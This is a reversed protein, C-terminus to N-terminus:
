EPNNNERIVANQIAAGTITFPTLDQDECYQIVSDICAPLCKGGFGMQGDPGPSYIHSYGVRPDQALHHAFENWDKLSVTAFIQAFENFLSVKSALYVNLFLKYAIAEVPTLNIKWRKRLYSYEYLEAVSNYTELDYTGIVVQTSDIFDRDASAQRLFEPNVAIRLKESWHVLRDGYELPLTTKIIVVGRYNRAALQELAEEVLMPSIAGDAESPLCVFVYDTDVVTDISTGPLKLDFLKQEIHSAGFGRSVALGVYGLGIIGLKISSNM